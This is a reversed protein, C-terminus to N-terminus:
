DIEEQPLHAEEHIEEQNPAKYHRAHRIIIDYLHKKFGGNLLNNASIFEVGYYGKQILESYTETMIKDAKQKIYEKWLPEETLFYLLNENDYKGRHALENRPVMEFSTQGTDTVSYRLTFNLVKNIFSDFLHLQITEPTAVLIERKSQKLEAVRTDQKTVYNALAKENRAKEIHARPLLKKVASFRVQDTKLMGQIHPTGEAGRELQGSASKIWTAAKSINEWQALESETPNNLTISWCTGKETTRTISHESRSM